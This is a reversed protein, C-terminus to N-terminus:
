HTRSNIVYSRQVLYDLLRQVNAIKTASGEKSSALLREYIDHQFSPAIKFKDQHKHLYEIAKLTIDASPDYPIKTMDIIFEIYPVISDHTHTDILYVLDRFKTQSCLLPRRYIKKHRNANLLSRILRISAVSFSVLGKDVLETLDTRITNIHMVQCHKIFYEMLALRNNAVAEEFIRQFIDDVNALPTFYTQRNQYLHDIIPVSKDHTITEYVRDSFTTYRYISFLYKVGVFDHHKLASALFEQFVEDRREVLVDKLFAEDSFLKGVFSSMRKFSFKTFLALWIQTSIEIGQAEMTQFFLWNLRSGIARNQFLMHERSTLLGKFRPLFYQFTEIQDLACSSFLIEKASIVPNQDSKCIKEILDRDRQSSLKVAKVSFSGVHMRLTNHSFGQSIILYLLELNINNYCEGVIEMTVDINENSNNDILTNSDMKGNPNYYVSLSTVIIRDFFKNWLAIFVRNSQQQSAGSKFCYSFWKHDLELGRDLLQYLPVLDFYLTHGLSDCIYKSDQKSIPSQYDRLVKDMTLTTDNAGGQTITVNKTLLLNTFHVRVREELLPSLADLLLPNCNDTLIENIYFIDPQSLSKPEQQLCAGVIIDVIERKFTTPTTNSSNILDLQDLAKSLSVKYWHNEILYNLVQADVKQLDLKDVVRAYGNEYMYVLVDINQLQSVIKVLDREWYFLHNYKNREFISIFLGTDKNALSLFLKEGISDSLVCGRQIKDKLLGLHGNDLMWEVDFIDDYKEAYRFHRQQISSYIQAALYINQFVQKYLQDIDGIM